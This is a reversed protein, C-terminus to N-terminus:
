QANLTAIVSICQAWGSALAVPFEIQCSHRLVNNLSAIIALRGAKHLRTIKKVAFAKPV